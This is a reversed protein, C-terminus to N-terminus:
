GLPILQGTTAKLPLGRFDDVFGLFPALVKVMIDFRRKVSIVIPDEVMRSFFGTTQIEYSFAGKCPLGAFNGQVFYM